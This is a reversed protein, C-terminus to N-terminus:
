DMSDLVKRLRAVELSDTVYNVKMEQMSATDQDSTSFRKMKASAHFERAATHDYLAKINGSNIGVGPMIIIRSKAHSVCQKLLEKGESASAKQGSSLVREFGLGILKELSELPDKLLDFARHFTAKMPHCLKLLETNREIDIEGDATLVGFVIGECNLQKCYAIDWKMTEFEVDSYVFDGGRPRIMVYVPIHTTSKAARILGASPTLGGELTASFLEIRNAGGNQAAIASEIGDCAIELVFKEEPM